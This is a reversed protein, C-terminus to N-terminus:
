QVKQGTVTKGTNVTANKITEGGKNIPDVVIDQPKGKGILNRWFAVIPSVATETTGYAAKGVTNVTGTVVNGSYNAADKVPENAAIAVTAVSLVFVMVLVISIVKKM